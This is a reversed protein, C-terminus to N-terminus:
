EGYKNGPQRPIRSDEQTMKGKHNRFQDPKFKKENIEDQTLCEEETKSETVALDAKTEPETSGEADGATAQMVIQSGRELGKNMGSSFGYNTNTRMMSGTAAAAYAGTSAEQAGANMQFNAEGIANQNGALNNFQVPQQPAVSQQMMPQQMGPQMM